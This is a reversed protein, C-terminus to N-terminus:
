FRIENVVSFKIQSRLIFPGARGRSHIRNSESQNRGGGVCVREREGKTGGAVRMGM